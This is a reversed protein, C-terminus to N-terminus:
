ACMIPIMYRRRIALFLRGPATRALDGDASNGGAGWTAAGRNLSAPGLRMSEFDNAGAGSSGVNSPMTSFLWHAALAAHMATFDDPCTVGCPGCPPLGCKVAELWYARDAANGDGGSILAASITDVAPGTATVALGVGVQGPQVVEQLRIGTLGQPAAAAALQLGLPTLLGDRIAQGDDPPVTAGYQYPLGQMTVTYTGTTANGPDVVVLWVEGTRVVVGPWRAVLFADDAFPCNPM